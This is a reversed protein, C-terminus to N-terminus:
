KNLESNTFNEQLFKNSVFGNYDAQDNALGVSVAVTLVLCQPLCSLITISCNDTSDTGSKSGSFRRSDLSLEM